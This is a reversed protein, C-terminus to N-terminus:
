VVFTHRLRLRTGPCVRADVLPNEIFEKMWCPSTIITQLHMRQRSHPHGGDSVMAMWLLSAADLDRLSFLCADAHPAPLKKGDRMNRWLHQTEALTEDFYILCSAQRTWTYPPNVLIRQGHSRPVRAHHRRAPRGHGLLVAGGCHFGSIQVCRSQLIFAPVALSEATHIGLSGIHVGHFGAVLTAQYIDSSRRM